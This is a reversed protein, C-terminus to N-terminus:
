PSHMKAPMRQAQVSARPRRDRHAPLSLVKEKFEEIDIPRLKEFLALYLSFTAIRCADPNVDVGKIQRQLIGLLAQAKTQKRSNRNELRWMEAMLNFMAVLFIGSGCAPDLVRCKDAGEYRNELAIHLATEALHRPTYYAGEERKKKLNGDKMFQEYIASITEVPIFRFDYAWFDLTMQGSQMDHGSLFDHLIELHVKGIHTEEDALAADFMTGNFESKLRQFFEQYLLRKIEDVRPRSLIDLLTNTGDPYYDPKIFQRKELFSVFLARGLLAHSRSLVIEAENMRPMPFDAPRPIGAFGLRAIRNPEAPEVVLVFRAFQDSGREQVLGTLTTATAQELARLEFGGTRERFNMQADLKMSPYNTELFQGIRTRDGSNFAALWASFQRFPVGKRAAEAESATMKPPALGPPPQAPQFRLGAVNYPEAAEVSFAIRTFQKGPGREQTLVVLRTDTSEEVKKVDFGGTQNRIGMDQDIRGFTMSKDFFQQMTARDGSNFANLWASFQRGAPTDPIQARLALACLAVYTLIVSLRKMRM